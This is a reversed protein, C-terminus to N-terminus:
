SKLKHIIARNFQLQNEKNLIIRQLAILFYKMLRELNVIQSILLLMSEIGNLNWELRM